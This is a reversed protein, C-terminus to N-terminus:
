INNKIKNDLEILDFNLAKRTISELYQDITKEHLLGKKQSMSSLMWSNISYHYHTLDKYTAIDDIFAEEGFSYIELNSYEDSKKALYKLIEKYIKFKPLDHQAWIAYQIRSYPPDFFFFMTDPHSEVFDIINKDIYKKAKAIIIDIDHESMSITQHKKIYAATDHITKFSAIIQGNDKSNIWKDLGGFRVSYSESMFWANPRDLSTKEGVCKGLKSQFLLCQLYKLNTYIKFDNLINEDYLYDFRSLPYSPYEKEQSYYKDVDLSYLISKIKHQRFLSRLLISREYYSSGSLSINIFTGGLKKSAEKSSTNEIMSTGLVISDYNYFNNIIGAAQQRMNTHFTVERDWAKHFIQMPDYVYYAPMLLGFSSLIVIFYVLTIKKYKKM